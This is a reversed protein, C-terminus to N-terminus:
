QTDWLRWIHSMYVAVTKKTKAWDKFPRSWYEWAGGTAKFPVPSDSIAGTPHQQGTPNPHFRPSVNPGGPPTLPFDAPIVLGIRVKTGAYKGTEIRYDFAVHDTTGAVVTPACGLKTLEAVFRETGVLTRGDSVPTPGVTVIQFRECDHLRIPENGKGEFSVSKNGVIEVLYSDAPDRGGFEKIIENPTWEVRKTSFEEGDVEFHIVHDHRTRELDTEAEELKHTAEELDALGHKVEQESETVKEKAAKVAALAAQEADDGCGERGHGPLDPPSTDQSEPPTNM